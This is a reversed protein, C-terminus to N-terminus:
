EGGNNRERWEINKRMMKAYLLKMQYLKDIIQRWREIIQISSLNILISLLKAV